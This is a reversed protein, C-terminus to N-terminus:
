INNFEPLRLLGCRAAVCGDWFYHSGRLFLGLRCAQLPRNEAGCSRSAGGRLPQLVDPLREVEPEKM